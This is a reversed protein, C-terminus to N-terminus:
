ADLDGGEVTIDGKGLSLTVAAHCQSLRVDGSGNKITMAGRRASVDLDGKGLEFVLPGEGGAVRADGQGHHLELATNVGEADFDGREHRGGIPPCGSSPIVLTTPRGDSRYRGRQYVVLERGERNLTPANNGRGVVMHVADVLSPETEISIDCDTVDIRIREIGELSGPLLPLDSENPDSM